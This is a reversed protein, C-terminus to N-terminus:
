SRKRRRETKDRRVKGAKFCFTNNGTKCSRESYCYQWANSNSEPNSVNDTAPKLKLWPQLMTSAIRFLIYNCVDVLFFIWYWILLQIIQFYKPVLEVFVNLGVRIKFNCAPLSKTVHLFNFQNLLLGYKSPAIYPTRIFM